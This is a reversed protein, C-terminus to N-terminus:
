LDIELEHVILSTPTTWSPLRRITESLAEDRAHGRANARLGIPLPARGRVTLSLEAGEPGLGELHVLRQGHLELAQDPPAGLSWALLRQSPIGLRLQAGPASVRLRVTREDTTADYADALLDVRPPALAPPGAPREHTFPPLWTEFAPWGPRAAVFGPLAALVSGLELADGSRVLLASRELGWAENQAVHALLVRKPREPTYPFRTATMALGVITVGACVLAAGRLDGAHQVAVSAMVFVVAAVGGALVAIPLDFPQPAPIIGSIPIFYGLFLVALEITVTAGPVVSALALARRARPFLLSGIMGAAGAWVWHLALYGAGVNRAAALALVASWFLLAGAWASLLHREADVRGLSRRRWAARVAFTAALAPAAFAPLVLAPASFWGHPRHLVGTLFLGSAVAGAVGALLALATWALAEVTTRLSIAGRRAALGLAIVALSLALVALGRRTTAPYSVMTLGLLDYFVVPGGGGGSPADGLPGNALARAVAVATDGMHQLGGAQLREPRDLGDHYAWGDGTMAVDLGRLGAEHFPTFDGNHPLLGSEVLDQGVINGVPAPAVRAYTRALWPAGPGAGFLGARGGPLAELYLYARVDRAWRHQLFGAAGFLGAEEGGNLNVVITHEFPAERALVRLAEVIAAVGTADDAAGVSDLLTDFHADLLVADASRGPLRAVVNVTRYVFAPLRTSRYIQTGAVSQLEVELRPIRRLEDALYAAAQAHSPTGNVRAGIEEALHRVVARARGESFRDAPADAPLPAPPRQAGWSAALVGVLVGALSAWTRAGESVRIRM